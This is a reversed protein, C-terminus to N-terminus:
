LSMTVICKRSKYIRARPRSHHLNRAAGAATKSNKSRMGPSLHAVLLHCSSTALLHHYLVYVERGFEKWVRWRRLLSSRACSRNRDRPAPAAREHSLKALLVPTSLALSRSTFSQCVSDSKHQQVIPTDRVRDSRRSCQKKPANVAHLHGVDPLEPM